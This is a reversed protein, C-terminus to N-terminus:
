KGFCFTDLTRGESSLTGAYVYVCTCMYVHTNRETMNLETHGWPSYGEVSRDMPNELCSYQLRNGNGEGRSRGSGPISGQNGANCASEVMQAMLSAGLGVGGYVCPYINFFFSLFLLGMICKSRQVKVEDQLYASTRIQSVDLWSTSSITKYSNQLM